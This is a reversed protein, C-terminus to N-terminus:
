GGVKPALDIEEADDGGPHAALLAEVNARSIMGLFDGDEISPDSPIQTPYTHLTDSICSIYCSFATSTLAQLYYEMYPPCIRDAGGVTSVLNFRVSKRGCEM